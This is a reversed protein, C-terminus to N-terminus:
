ESSERRGSQGRELRQRYRELRRRRDDVLKLLDISLFYGDVGDRNSWGLSYRNDFHLSVGHGVSSTGLRNSIVTTLSVGFPVGFLPSRESWWNVGIWEVAVSLGLQHGPAADSVREVVLGPHLLSWQRIPPGVLYERRLHRRELMTTLMLDLPTQSRGSTLFEDWEAATEDLRSAVEAAPEVAASEVAASPKDAAQGFAPGGLLCFAVLV